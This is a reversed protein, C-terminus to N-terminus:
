KGKPRCNTGNYILEIWSSLDGKATLELKNEASSLYNKPNDKALSDFRDLWNM